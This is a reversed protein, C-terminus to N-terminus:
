ESPITRYSAAHPTGGKTPAGEWTRPWCARRAGPRGWPTGSEKHIIISRISALCGSVRGAADSIAWVRVATAGPRAPSGAAGRTWSGGGEVGDVTGYMHLSSDSDAGPSSVTAGVAGVVPVSGVTTSPYAGVRTAGEVGAPSVTATDGDGPVGVM